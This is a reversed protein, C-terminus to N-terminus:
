TEKLDSETLNFLQMITEVKIEEDCAFSPYAGRAPIKGELTWVTHGDQIGKFIVGKQKLHEIYLKCWEIAMQKLDAIFERKMAHVEIASYTKNHTEETNWIDKLTALPKTM